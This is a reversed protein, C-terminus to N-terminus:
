DGCHETFSMSVEYKNRDDENATQTTSKDSWGFNTITVPMFWWDAEFLWPHDQKAVDALSNLDTWATTGKLLIKIKFSRPQKGLTQLLNNGGPIKQKSVNHGFRFSIPKSIFTGTDFQFKEESVCVFGIFVKSNLNNNTYIIRDIATMVTGGDSDPSALTGKIMTWLDATTTDLHFYDGTTGGDDSFGFGEAGSHTLTESESKVWAFFYTYNTDFDITIENFERYVPGANTNLGHIYNASYRGIISDPSLKFARVDTDSFNWNEFEGLHNFSDVVFYKHLAYTM